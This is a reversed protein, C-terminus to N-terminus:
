RLLLFCDGAPAGDTRGAFRSDRVEPQPYGLTLCGKLLESDADDTWPVLVRDPAWFKFGHGLTLRLSHDVRLIEARTAAGPAKAPGLTKRLRKRPNESGDGKDILIGAFRLM